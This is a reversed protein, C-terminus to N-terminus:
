KRLKFLRKGIVHITTKYMQALETYTFSESDKLLRECEEKSWRKIEKGKIIGKFRMATYVASYSVDMIRAIDKISINIDHLYRLRYEYTDGRLNQQMSTDKLVAIQNENLKVKKPM